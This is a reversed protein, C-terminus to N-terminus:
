KASSPQGQALIQAWRGGNIYTPRQCLMAQYTTHLDAGPIRVPSGQAASSFRTFKVRVGGAPGLWKDIKLLLIIPTYPYCINLNNSKLPPIIHVHKEM